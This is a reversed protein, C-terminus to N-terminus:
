QDPWAGNRRDTTQSSLQVDWPSIPHQSLLAKVHSLPNMSTMNPTWEKRFIPNAVSPARIEPGWFIPGYIQNEASMATATWRLTWKCMAPGGRKANYQNLLVQDERRPKYQNKGLNCISGYKTSLLTLRGYEVKQAASDALVRNKQDQYVEFAAFSGGIASPRPGRMGQDERRPKYHNKWSQLHFWIQNFLLTLRGYEVKQAASDALVRNKQEQYVEFAAFSAGIASLRPGRMGQDERRRKYQNQWSKQAASDTLVRYEQEQHVEVVRLQMAWILVCQMGSGTTRQVAPEACTEDMARVDDSKSMRFSYTFLHLQSRWPGPIISPVVYLTLPLPLALWTKLESPTDSQAPSM